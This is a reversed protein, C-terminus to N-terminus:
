IAMPWSLRWSMRRVRYGHACRLAESSVPLEPFGARADIQVAAAFTEGERFDWDFRSEVLRGDSRCGIVPLAAAARIWALPEPPGHETSEVAVLMADSVDDGHVLLRGASWALTALRKRFGYHLNGNLVAWWADCAMGLVLLCANGGVQAFPVAVMLERYQAGWTIPIGGFFARANSQEGFALLCRAIPDRPPPMVSPPLLPGLAAEPVDVIALCGDFMAEGAVQGPPLRVSEAAPETTHDTM